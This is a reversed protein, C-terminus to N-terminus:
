LGCILLAYAICIVNRKDEYDVVYSAVDNDGIFSTTDICDRIALSSTVGYALSYILHLAFAV